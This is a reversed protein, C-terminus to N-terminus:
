KEACVIFSNYLVKDQGDKKIIRKNYVDATVNSVGLSLLTQVDWGPRVEKSLPLNYALEEMIHTNTVKKMYEPEGRREKENRYDEDFLYLYQNEDFNIMRGGPTLVRMWESYARKPQEMVWTVNRTVILDFTNDEFELNQADMRMVRINVGAEEANKKASNVMNETYDISTVDHGAGAMLISFFGAGCGIDLVKLKDKNPSYKCIKDLWDFKVDQNLDIKCRETYGTARTGWYAAIENIQSM